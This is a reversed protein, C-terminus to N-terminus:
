GKLEELLSFCRCPAVYYLLLCLNCITVKSQSQCGWCNYYQACLNQQGVKYLVFFGSRAIGMIRLWIAPKVIEAKVAPTNQGKEFKHDTSYQLPLNWAEIEKGTLGDEAKSETHLTEM